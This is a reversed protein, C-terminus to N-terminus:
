DEYLIQKAGSIEGVRSTKHITLSGTCDIFEIDCFENIIIDHGNVRDVKVGSLEINTAEITGIKSSGNGLLKSKNNGVGNKLFDIGRELFKIPFGKNVSFITVTDGFIESATICGDVKIYEANIEADSTLVGECNLCEAEIKAGGSVRMVGDVEIHDAHIDGSFEAVGDIELRKVKLTGKAKFVGDIEVREAEVAGKANCVGAVEIRGYKGENVTGISSICIDM